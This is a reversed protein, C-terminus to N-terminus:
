PIRIDVASKRAPRTANSSDHDSTFSGHDEHQLSDSKPESKPDPSDKLRLFCPMPCWDPSPYLNLRSIQALSGNVVM